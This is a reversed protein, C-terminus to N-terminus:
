VVEIELRKSHSYKKLFNTAMTVLYNLTLVTKPSGNTNERRAIAVMKFAVVNIKNGDFHWNGEDRDQHDAASGRNQRMRSSWASIKVGSGKGNGQHSERQM